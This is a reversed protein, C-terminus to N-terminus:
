AARAEANPCRQDEEIASCPQFQTDHRRPEAAPPTDYERGGVM